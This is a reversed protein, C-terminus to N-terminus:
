CVICEDLSNYVLFQFISNEDVLHKFEQFFVTSIVSNDENRMSCLGVRKLTAFSETTTTFTNLFSGKDNPQKSIILM